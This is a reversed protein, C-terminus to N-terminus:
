SRRIHPQVSSTENEDEYQCSSKLSSQNPAVCSYSVIDNNDSISTQFSAYDGPDVQNFQQRSITYNVQEKPVDDNYVEMEIEFEISRSKNDLMKMDSDTINGDTSNALLESKDPYTSTDTENDITLTQTSQNTHHLIIRKEIIHGRYAEFENWVYVALAGLGSIYSIAGLLERRSIEM